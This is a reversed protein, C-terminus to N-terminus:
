WLWGGCSSILGEKWALNVVNSDLWGLSVNGLLSCKLVSLIGDWGMWERDYCRM